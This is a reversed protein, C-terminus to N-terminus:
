AIARRNRLIARATEIVGAARLERLTAESMRQAEFEEDLVGKDALEIWHKWQWATEGPYEDRWRAFFARANEVKRVFRAKTTMPLHAIIVDGAPETPIRAGDHGFAAHWGVGFTAVASTRCALKPAIAHNIWRKDSANKLAARSL